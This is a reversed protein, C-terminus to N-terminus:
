NECIESLNALNRTTTIATIPKAVFTKAFSIACLVRESARQTAEFCTQYCPGKRLVLLELTEAPTGSRSALSTGDLTLVLTQTADRALEALRVAIPQDFACNLVSISKYHNVLLSNLRYIVQSSVNDVQLTANKQTYAWSM